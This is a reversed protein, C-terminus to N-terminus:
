NCPGCGSGIDCGSCASDGGSCSSGADCSSGSSSGSEEAARTSFAACLGCSACGCEELAFWAFIGKRSKRKSFQESDNGNQQAMLSNHADRCAQFRARIKPFAALIGHKQIALKAFGSCGTGGYLASYACRFGKRPSIWNQYGAIGALAFRSLM